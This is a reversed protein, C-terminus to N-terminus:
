PAMDILNLNGLDLLLLQAPLIEGDGWRATLAPLSSHLGETGGVFYLQNVDAATVERVKHIEAIVEALSVGEGFERQPFSFANELNAKVRPLVKEKEYREDVLIAAELAFKQLQYSGIRVERSPEHFRRIAALLSQYLNTEPGVEAGSESAITIHVLRTEGEWLERAKAKGIGARGRAFDEYDQLSVVRDLTLVKRPANARALELTEPAGSGTAPLPNTVAKIGLPKTQLLALSGSAVEGEPGIGTRYTAVINEQGTPLRSGQLGDGFTIAARSENDIRVIYKQAGGDLGYLSDTEEWLAGNVRVELTSEGGTPTAAAVFTLPFTRPVFRQNLATSEGNGLVEDPVTEGHTALVVNGSIRLTPRDYIQTLPRELTLHTEPKDVIVQYITAVESVNEDSELSPELSIDDPPATVSGVFGSRDMLLWRVAGTEDTEPPQLVINSSGPRLDTTDVENPATLILGSQEVAVRARVRKGTFVLTKDRELHPVFRDLVVHDGQIPSTVAVEVAVAQLQESQAFVVSERLKFGTLHERTDVKVRTVKGTLSYETRPVIRVETARYLEVYTPKVLAVWSNQLVKPFPAELDLLDDKIHFDPWENQKEVASPVTFVAVEKELEETAELNWLRLTGDGGASLALTGQPSVAVDNVNAGHGYFSAMEQLMVLVHDHNAAIDGRFVQAAIGFDISWKKVIRDNGCSVFFSGDPSFAVGNVVRGHGRYTLPKPTQSADDWDTVNWLKVTRDSSASLAYLKNDPSPTTFHAVSNVNLFHGTLTKEVIGTGLNWYKLTHDASASLATGNPTFAVSNIAGTHGHLVVPDEQQKLDWLKLTGDSHGTLATEETQSAAVCVVSADVTGAPLSGIRQGAQLDWIKLRGDQHGSLARMTGESAPLFTVCTVPSTQDIFSRIARGSGVAWLTFSHDESFSLAHQGDESLAVGEVATTTAAVYKKKFELSLDDWEPANHGFLATRLRFAFIKLPKGDEYMPVYPHGIGETWAVRTYGARANPEVTNLIRFDWRESGFYVERHEDVFLIPDGPQLGTSVGELHIETMGEPKAFPMKREVTVPLLVNWEARAELAEHTEFVQPREDQGPISLVKTGLPVFARGAAGASDDVTLALHASASVGPNLEYSISRALELVSRREVATRLFGEDAIREQYFTLVDAVTAWGDLLGIAPDTGERTTLPQLPRHGQYPGDPIEYSALRGLMRKLFHGHKGLRYRLKALGPRNFHEFALTEGEAPRGNAPRSKRSFASM